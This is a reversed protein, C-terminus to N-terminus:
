LRCDYSRFLCDGSYGAVFTRPVTVLYPDHCTM